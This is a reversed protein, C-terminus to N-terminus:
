RGAIWLKSNQIEEALFSQIENTIIMNGLSELPGKADVVVSSPKCTFLFFERKRKRAFGLLFLFFRRERKRGEKGARIILPKFYRTFYLSHTITTATSDCMLLWHFAWSIPPFKLLAFCPTKRLSARWWKKQCLFPHDLWLCIHLFNLMCFWDINLIPQWHSPASIGFPPIWCEMIHCSHHTRCNKTQRISHNVKGPLTWTKNWWGGVKIRTWNTFINIQSAFAHCLLLSMIFNCLMHCFIHCL